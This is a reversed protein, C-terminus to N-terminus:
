APVPNGGINEPTDGGSAKEPPAVYLQKILKIGPFHEQRLSSRDRQIGRQVCHGYFRTDDVPVRREAKKQPNEQQQHETQAAM